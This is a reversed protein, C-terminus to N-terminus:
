SQEKKLICSTYTPEPTTSVDWTMMSTGHRKTLWLNEPAFRSELKLVMDYDNATTNNKQPSPRVTENVGRNKVM